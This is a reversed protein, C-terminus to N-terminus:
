KNYDQFPVSKRGRDLVMFAAHTQIGSMFNQSRQSTTAANETSILGRVQTAREPVWVHGSQPAPMGSEGTRQQMRAVQACM